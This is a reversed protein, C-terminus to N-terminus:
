FISTNKENIIREREEELTSTYILKVLPLQEEFNVEILIHSKYMDDLADWISTYMVGKVILLDALSVSPYQERSVTQASFLPQGYKQILVDELNCYFPVVETKNIFLFVVSVCALKNELFTFIVISNENDFLTGRYAFGATEERFFHLEQNKDMTEKVTEKSSGFDLDSFSYTSESYVCFSLLFLLLIAIKKM